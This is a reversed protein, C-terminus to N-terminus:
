RTRWFRIGILGNEIKEKYKLRISHQKASILISKILPETDLAPIFFSSGLVMAHWEIIVPIGENFIQNQKQHKV